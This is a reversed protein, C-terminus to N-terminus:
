QDAGKKISFKSMATLKDMKGSGFDTLVSSKLSLELTGPIKCGACKTLAVNFVLVENEKLSKITRGYELINEKLDREFEPYLDAVKKDRTAKDLNSLGLTPINFKNVDSENSSYVQMYFIIGYDKLREYYVNRESFYTKSLDPRYLRSFISSLMEMDPEKVEISETNIVVLKKLAQDRSLKGQRLASIDSKSGEVSIRSRKASNFYLHHRDGQNTVIIKENASLQSIFDGYDLIFDKAAEIIRDNYEKRISDNSLVRRDKMKQKVKNVGNESRVVEVVKEEESSGNQTISYHYGDGGSIVNAGKFDAGGGISMVFPMSFDGPLRFTVGYGPQYSGKIDLGFFTHEQKLEQKILTALVNEAVEIDRKMRDDDKTQAFTAQSQFTLAVIVGIWLKMRNKM